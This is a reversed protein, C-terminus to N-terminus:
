KGDTKYYQKATNFMHLMLIFMGQDQPANIPINSIDKQTKDFIYRVIVQICEIEGPNQKNIVEIVREKTIM